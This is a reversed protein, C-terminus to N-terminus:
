LNKIWHFPQILKNGIKWSASAYVAATEEKAREAKGALRCCEEKTLDLEKRLKENEAREHEAKVALSNYNQSLRSLEAQLDTKDKKMQDLQKRLDENGSKLQRLRRGQMENKMRLTLLNMQLEFRDLTEPGSGNPETVTDCIKRFTEAIQPHLTELIPFLDYKEATEALPKLHLLQTETTERRIDGLIFNFMWQVYENGYLSLWGNKQWWATIHDVTLLHIPMKIKLDSTRDMVSGSRGWRYNYLVEPIFRFRKGFPFAEMIFIMDETLWLDEDFKLGSRDIFEKKYAHRWCFPKAAPEGFLIKAEFHEYSKRPVNTLTWKLWEPIFVEPETIINTGFIIIDPDDSQYTKWVTECAAPSLHDDADMFMIVEGRANRLGNNRASAAGHNEQRIGIFRSDKAAFADIITQSGDTSGDNVCIFEADSFTQKRCSELCEELFAETNYVPIIISIIPSTNM